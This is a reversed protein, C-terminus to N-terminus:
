VDSAKRQDQYDREHALVYDETKTEGIEKVIWGNEWNGETMEIKLIKNLKAFKAPIWATHLSTHGNPLPREMRCQKYMLKKKAM